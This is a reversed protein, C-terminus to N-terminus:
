SDNVHYSSSNFWNNPDNGIRQLISVSPDLIRRKDMERTLCVYFDCTYSDPEPMYVKMEETLTKLAFRCEIGHM